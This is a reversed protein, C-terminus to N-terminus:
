REDTSWKRGLLRKDYDLVAHRAERLEQPMLEAAQKGADSRLDLGELYSVFIANRLSEDGDKLAATAIEFCEFVVDFSRGEIASQTFMLFEMVQLHDLAKWEGLDRQLTPFKSVLLKQFATADVLANIRRTPITDCLEAILSNDAVRVEPGAGRTLPWRPHEDM